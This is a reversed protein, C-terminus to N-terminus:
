RSYGEWEKYHDPTTSFTADYGFKQNFERRVKKIDSLDGFYERKFLDWRREKLWDVEPEDQESPNLNLGGSGSGYCQRNLKSTGAAQRAQKDKKLREFDADKLPVVIKM